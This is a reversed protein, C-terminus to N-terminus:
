LHHDSGAASKAVRKYRKDRYVMADSFLRRRYFGRVCSWYAALAKETQKKKSAMPKTTGVFDGGVRDSKYWEFCCEKKRVNDMVFFPAFPRSAATQALMGDLQHLM